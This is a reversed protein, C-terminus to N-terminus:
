DTTQSPPAWTEPPAWEPRRVTVPRGDVTLEGDIRDLRLLAIAGGDAGTMVEGARRDGNLLVEAGVAPPPGDFALPLMRNRIAGRRKMRSTTEQGVFCGKAFDIGNLLDFDAEIPYTRDVAMDRAPDPVGVALRHADYDAEPATTTGTEGYRRGGLLSTRPDAVFGDAVEPWSATVPRDDAVVEVKARLKYMTLRQSLAERRDSAVDLLVTDGDGFLFLDFLLRGPPSLLAGFRLEGEGLTEVNQTLLNNLFAKTDEGSVRIVARSDLRAINTM